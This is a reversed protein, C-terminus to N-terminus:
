KELNMKILLYGIDFGLLSFWIMWIGTFISVILTTIELLLRKKLVYTLINQTKLKDIYNNLLEEGICVVIFIGFLVYNTISIKFILTLIAFVFMAVYHALHDIKSTLILGIIIGYWLSSIIPAFYLPLFLLFGYLMGFLFLKFKNKEKIEDILYDTYATSLGAFITLIVLILLNM